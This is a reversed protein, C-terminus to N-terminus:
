DWEQVQTLGRAQWVRNETGPEKARRERMISPSALLPHVFSHSLAAWCAMTDAKGIADNVIRVRRTQAVGKDPSGFLNSAVEEKESCISQSPENDQSKQGTPHDCIQAFKREAEGKEACPTKKKTSTSSV